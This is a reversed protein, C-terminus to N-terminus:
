SFILVQLSEALSFDRGRGDSGLGGAHLTIKVELLGNRPLLQEGRNGVMLSTLFPHLPSFVVM